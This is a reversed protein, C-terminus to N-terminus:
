KKNAINYKLTLFLDLLIFYLTPATKPTKDITIKTNEITLDAYNYNDSSGYTAKKYITFAANYIDKESGTSTTLESDKIELSNVNNIIGIPSNSSNGTINTAEIKGNSYFLPSNTGETNIMSDSVYVTSNTDLTKIGSSNNGITSIELNSANLEAEESISISPSNNKLTKLTVNNLVAKSSLGSLFIASSYDANTRISSDTLELISADKVIVASNLGFYESIEKDTTLGDSKNLDLNTGKYTSQNSIQLVSTNNDKSEEKLNDAKKDQTVEVIAIMKENRALTTEGNLIKNDSIIVNTTPLITGLIILSLVSYALRTKNNITEKISLKGFSTSFLLIISLSTLLPMTIVIALESAIYSNTEKVVMTDKEEEAIEEVSQEEPKTLLETIPTNEKETIIRQEAKNITNINFYISSILLLITIIIFIYNRKKM